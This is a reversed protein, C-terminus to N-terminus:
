ADGVGVGLRGDVVAGLDVAVVRDVVQGLPGVAGPVDVGLVAGDGGLDDDVGGAQPGPFKAAHDADFQRQEGHFVLVHDGLFQRLDGVEAGFHGHGDVVFAVEVGALLAVRQQEAGVLVGALRPRDVGRREVEAHPQQGGVEVAEDVPELHGLLSHRHEGLGADGPGNM